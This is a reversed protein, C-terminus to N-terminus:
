RGARNSLSQESISRVGVIESNRIITGDGTATAGNPMSQEFLETLRHVLRSGEEDDVGQLVVEHGGRLMITIRRSM